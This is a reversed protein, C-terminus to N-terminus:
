PPKLAILFGGALPDRRTAGGDVNTGPTTGLRTRFGRMQTQELM